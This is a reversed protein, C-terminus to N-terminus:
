ITNCPYRHGGHEAWVEIWPYSSTAGDVEWKIVLGQDEYPNSRETWERYIGVGLAGLCVTVVLFVIISGKM